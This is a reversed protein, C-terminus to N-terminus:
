FWNGWNRREVTNRICENEFVWNKKKKKKDVAM